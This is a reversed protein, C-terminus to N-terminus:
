VTTSVCYDMLLLCCNKDVSVSLRFGDNEMHVIAASSRALPHCPYYIFKSAEHNAIITFKQELLYKRLHKVACCGALAERLTQPLGREAKELRKSNPTAPRKRREPIVGVGTSPTDTILVTHYHFFFHSFSALNCISCSCEFCRQMLQIGTSRILQCFVLFVVPERLSALFLFAYYHHDGVTSCLEQLNTYSLM